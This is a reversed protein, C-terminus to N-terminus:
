AIEGLRGLFHSTRDDACWICCQHSLEPATDLMHVHGFGPGGLKGKGVMVVPEGPVLAEADTLFKQAAAVDRGDLADLLGAIARDPPSANAPLNKLRDGPKASPGASAAANGQFSAAGGKVGVPAAM